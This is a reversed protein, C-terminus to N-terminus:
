TNPAKFGQKAVDANQVANIETNDYEGVVENLLNKGTSYAIEAATEKAIEPPTVAVKQIPLM